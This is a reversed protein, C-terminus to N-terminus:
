KKFVYGLISDAVSSKEVQISNAEERAFKVAKWLANVREIMTRIEEAPYATSYSIETWIGEPEDVSIIEAQGPSHPGPEIKVLSKYNKKTRIRKEPYKSTYKAQNTDYVWEKTPDLVPLKTIFTRLDNLQKELYLLHTVPVDKAVTEGNVVINAKALTNGIDKTAVTNWLDSLHQQTLKVIERADKQIVKRQEPQTEGNETNPQYTSVFGSFLETKQLVQHAKTLDAYENKKVGDEISIIQCLKPMKKEV